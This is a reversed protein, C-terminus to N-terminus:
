ATASRYVAVTQEACRAWTFGAARTLGRTRWREPDALVEEIAAAFGEVDEPDVLPAANGLVEPLSGSSAAVVPTGCAMAEVAPFGFGEGRSPFVLCAARRYLEVLEADSVRGVLQIRAAAASSRVRAVVAEDGWGRAGAVVLPLDDRELREFAAIAAELNKRPQLTGVALVCDRPNGDGPTFQEGIGWPTVVADIGIAERLRDRTHQSPVMVASARRLARTLVTRAHLSNARTFWEPHEWSLADGVAVVTPTAHRVPPALPMPCHLVDAGLRAVRRPLRVPFWTLERALGRALRGGRAGPQAIPVVEVDDRAELAARLERAARASGGADLELGTLEYAVRV